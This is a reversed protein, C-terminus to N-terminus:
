SDQEGFSFAIVQANIGVSTFHHVMGVFTPFIEPRNEELGDRPMHELKSESVAAGITPKSTRPAQNPLLWERKM